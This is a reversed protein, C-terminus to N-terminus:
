DTATRSAAQFLLVEKPGDIGTPASLQLKVNGDDDAAAQAGLAMEQFPNQDTSAYVFALNLKKTATGCSSGSSQTSSASSGCATVASLSALLAASLVAMSRIGSSYM